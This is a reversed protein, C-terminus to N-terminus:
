EKKWMSSQITPAVELMPMDQESAAKLTLFVFQYHNYLVYLIKPVVHKKPVVISVWVHDQDQYISIIDMPSRHFPQVNM